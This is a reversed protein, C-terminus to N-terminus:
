QLQKARGLSAPCPPMANQSGPFADQTSDGPSSQLFGMLYFKASNGTARLFDRTTEVVSLKGKSMRTSVLSWSLPPSSSPKSENEAGRASGNAGGVHVCRHVKADKM